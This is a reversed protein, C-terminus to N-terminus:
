IIDTNETLEVIRSVNRNHVQLDKVYLNAAYWFGPM